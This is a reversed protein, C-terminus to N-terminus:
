RRVMGAGVPLSAMPEDLAYITYRRVVNDADAIEERYIPTRPGVWDALLTGLTPDFEVAREPVPPCFM